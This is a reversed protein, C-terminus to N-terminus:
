ASMPLGSGDWQFLGNRPNPSPDYGQQYRDSYGSLVWTGPAVVDPKIRGDDTPGRSSFAAMQEANGASAGPANQGSCGGYTLGSDCAYDGGRDNESAGVTIVNKATGPSGTSNSDVVGDGNSDAGANGASFVIAMKPNNWVFDDANAADLTYAGAVSSGWSNTHVRAGAAYAQQFLAGIDDPIGILYYNDPAGACNGFTTAWDEVAQFILSAGPATGTGEGGPGGGGLVSAAVHTGHGSDVDQAGDNIATYCFPGDPAPWDRIAVIRSAPIDAHAKAATGGGIGTDAVAVIQGTGDYGSANALNAGMIVGGGYENHKERIVFDEIWAVDLVGAVADLQAADAAVVLTRGQARTVEAGTDEIEAAALDADAGAEIRVWYLKAGDRTLRPHLKYAPHFLGVWAVEDLEEVARGAAPTMRAKFAFDPLYGLLEAGLAEAAARWAPEVPGTFQVIYYGRVGQAYEAIALGPPIDPREGLAPTFTAARLKIPAADPPGPPVVQQAPASLALTALLVTVALGLYLKGHM